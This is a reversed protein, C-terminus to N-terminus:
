TANVDPTRGLTPAGGVTAARAMADVATGLPDIENALCLAAIFEAVSAWRPELGVDQGDPLLGHLRGADGDAPDRRLVAADQDDGAGVEQRDGGPDPRM